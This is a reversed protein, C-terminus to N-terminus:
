SNRLNFPPQVPKDSDVSTLTGCQQFSCTDWTVQYYAKKIDKADANKNVGLVKYYDQKHRNDSGHIGRSFIPVSSVSAPRKLLCGPFIPLSIVYTWSDLLFTSSYPQSVKRDWPKLNKWSKHALTVWPAFFPPDKKSIIPGFCILSVVTSM